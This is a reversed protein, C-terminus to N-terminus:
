QVEGNKKAINELYQKHFDNAKEKGIGVQKRTAEISLGDAFCEFCDMLDKADKAKMIAVSAAKKDQAKEILAVALTPTLGSV